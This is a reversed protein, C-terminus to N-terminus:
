EDLHANPRISTFWKRWKRVANARRNETIGEESPESITRSM